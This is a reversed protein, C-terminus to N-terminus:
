LLKGPLGSNRKESSPSFVERGGTHVAGAKHRSVWVPNSMVRHGRGDFTGEAGTFAEVRFYGESQAPVHFHEEFFYGLPGRREAVVRERKSGIEGDYLVVREIEGFDGSSLVRVVAEADEERIFGGILQQQPNSAPTISLAPGDTVIVRGARLSEIVAQETLESELFVGTKMRGFLQQENEVLQLFPIRVQRFRNFNGHADNGAILILRKGSLLARIWAQRGKEFAEDWRGNICQMGHLGDVTVDDNSWVGRGLLVRQMFPVREMPHAAFALAEREARQLVEPITFEAKQPLWSEAGDGSGPIFQRNGLLLM